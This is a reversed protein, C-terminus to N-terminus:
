FVKDQKLFGWEILRGCWYEDSVQLDVKLAQRAVDNGDINPDAILQATYTSAASAFVQDAALSALGTVAMENVGMIRSLKEDAIRYQSMILARRVAIFIRAAYVAFTGFASVTILFDNSSHVVTFGVSILGALTLLDVRLLDRTKPVVRVSCRPYFHNVNGWLVNQYIELRVCQVEGCPRSIKGGAESESGGNGQLRNIARSVVTRANDMLQVRWAIRQLERNPKFERYMLVWLQHTPEQTFIPLMLEKLATLGKDLQIKSSPYVRRVMSKQDSIQESTSHGTSSSARFFIKRFFNVPADLWGLYLQEISRIKAGYQAGSERQVGTGRTAVFAYPFLPSQTRRSALLPHQDMEAAEFLSADLCDFTSVQVPLATMAPPSLPPPCDCHFRALSLLSLLSRVAALSEQENASNFVHNAGDTLECMDSRTRSLIQPLNEELKKLILRKKSSSVATEGVYRQLADAISCSDMPVYAPCEPISLDQVTSRSGLSTSNIDAGLIDGVESRELARAVAAADKYAARADRFQRGIKLARYRLPATLWRARRQRRSHEQADATSKNSEGGNPLDKKPALCIVAPKRRRHQLPSRYRRDSHTLWFTPIDGQVPASVFHLAGTSM